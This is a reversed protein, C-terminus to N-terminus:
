ENEVKRIITEAIEYDDGEFLEEIETYPMETVPFAVFRHMGDCPESVKKIVWQTKM